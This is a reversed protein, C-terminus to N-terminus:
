STSAPRRVWVDGDRVETAYVALTCDDWGPHLNRGTALDFAYWHFPCELTTGTVEAKTLPSGLHPCTPEVAVISGDDTRVLRVTLDDDVVVEPWPAGEIRHSGVNKWGEVAAEM